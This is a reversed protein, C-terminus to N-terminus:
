GRGLQLQVVKVLVTRTCWALFGKQTQYENSYWFTFDDTVRLCFATSVFFRVFLYLGFQGSV